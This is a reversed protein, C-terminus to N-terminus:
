RRRRTYSRVRTGDKRTYSRVRQTRQRTETIPYAIGNSDGMGADPDAFDSGVYGPSVMQEAERAESTYRAAEQAKQHDIELQLRDTEEQDLRAREAPPLGRLAARGAAESAALRRRETLIIARKRAKAARLRALEARRVRDAGAKEEPLPALNEPTPFSPDVVLAPAPTFAPAAPRQAFGTGAAAPIIPVAPVAPPALGPRQPPPFAATPSHPAPTSSVPPLSSSPLPAPAEGDSLGCGSNLLGLALVASIGAGKWIGPNWSAM